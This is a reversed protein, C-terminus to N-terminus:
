RGRGGMRPGSGVTGANREGPAGPASTGGGSTGRHRATSPFHCQVARGSATTDIGLLRRGTVTRDRAAFRAEAPRRTSPPSSSCTPSCPVGSTLLAKRTLSRYSAKTTGGSISCATAPFDTSSTSSSTTERHVIVIQALSTRLAPAVET